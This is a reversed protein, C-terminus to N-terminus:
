SRSRWTQSTFICCTSGLQHKSTKNSGGTVWSRRWRLSLNTRPKCLTCVSCPFGHIRSMKYKKTDCHWIQRCHLKQEIMGSEGELHFESQTTTPPCKFHVGWLGQKPFSIAKVIAKQWTAGCHMNIILPVHRLAAPNLRDLWLRRVNGRTIQRM